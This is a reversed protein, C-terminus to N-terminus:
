SQEEKIKSEARTIAEEMIERLIEAEKLVKGALQSRKLVLSAVRRKLDDGVVFNITPRKM